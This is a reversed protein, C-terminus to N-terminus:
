GRKPYNHGTPPDHSDSSALGSVVARFFPDQHSEASTMARGAQALLGETRLDDDEATERRISM